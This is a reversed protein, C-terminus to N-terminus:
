KISLATPPSPKPNLQGPIVSVENSYDSENGDPLYATVAFYWRINPDLGSITYDLMQGVDIPPYEYMRSGTGYYVKYGAVGETPSPSWVLAPDRALAPAALLLLSLLLKM